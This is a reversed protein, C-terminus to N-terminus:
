KLHVSEDVLKKLKPNDVTSLSRMPDESRDNLLTPDVRAGKSLLEIIRDQKQRSTELESKIQVLEDDKKMAAQLTLAMGCKYCMEADSECLTGCRVCKRPMKLQKEEKPKVLGYSRLLADDVDRGSLHVYNRPMDSGQEWGAFMCLQAETLSNSLETLRTHRFLYPRVHKEVGAKKALRGVLKSVGLWKLPQYTTDNSMDVWLPADKARLPHHEIWEALLPAANVVRISRPGTKGKEISIKAGYSDFAVSNRKLGILEHPRFAGEYATEILAKDRM